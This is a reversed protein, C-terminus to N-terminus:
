AIIEMTMAALVVENSFNARIHADRRSLAGSNRSCECRVSRMAPSYGATRMKVSYGRNTAALTADSM